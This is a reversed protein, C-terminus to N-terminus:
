RWKNALFDCRENLVIDNHGKVKLVEITNDLCLLEYIRLIDQWLDKNKVQQRNSTRWGNSRWNIYWKDKFCNSIYASDTYFEIAYNKYGSEQCYELAKIFATMEMRNNTTEDTDSELKGNRELLVTESEDAVVFAWGGKKIMNNASGDTYILIKNM